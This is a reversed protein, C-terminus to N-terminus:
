INKTNLETWAAKISWGIGQGKWEEAGPISETKLLEEQSKGAKMNKEVYVLLKSLYNEMAKLDEADGTIADPDLSHGFIFITEKDFKARVKELTLIWNNIDSGAATDIYPFRRNFILDGMHAINANEFHIVSDGSTHAPGFNYAKISEDGVKDSWDNKFTTDPYLQNEENGNNKATLMQFKKSNEHAVIKKAFGKFAINGATHDGHHHTNMLLDTAKDSQQKIEEILHNAQDPFQTDIIVIGDKSIMWGITGGRETFVGVNNRLVKMKWAQDQNFLAAFAIRGPLFGISSLLGVSKLFVRRNAKM